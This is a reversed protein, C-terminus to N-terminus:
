NCDNGKWNWKRQYKKNFNWINKKDSFSAPSDKILFRSLIKMINKYEASNIIYNSDKEVKDPNDQM